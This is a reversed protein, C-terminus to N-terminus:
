DLKTNIPVGMEKFEGAWKIVRHAQIIAVVLMIIACGNIQTLINSVLSLYSMVLGTYVAWMQKLCTCVGIVLWLITLPILIVLAEPPMDANPADAALVLVCVILAVAGIFIWFGGLGHIEKRFRELKTRTSRSGSGKTRYSRDLVEGCFRCKKARSLIMEGCVPCPKRPRDDDGFDDPDEEYDEEINRARRRKPPAEFESDFGGSFEEADFVDEDEAVAPKPIRVPEGCAPCKARRGAASDPARLLRGCADCQAEIPM